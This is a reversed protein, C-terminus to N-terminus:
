KVNLVQKEMSSERKTCYNVMKKLLDATLLVDSTQKCVAVLEKQQICSSCKLWTMSGVHSLLHLHNEKM